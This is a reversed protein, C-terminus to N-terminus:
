AAHRGGSQMLGACACAGLGWVRVEAEGVAAAAVLRRVDRAPFLPMLTKDAARMAAAFRAEDSAGRAEGRHHAAEAAAIAARLLADPAESHFPPRPPDGWQRYRRTM